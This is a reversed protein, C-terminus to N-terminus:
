DELKEKNELLLFVADLRLFYDDNIMDSGFALRLSCDHSSFSTHSYFPVLSPLRGFKMVYPASTEKKIYVLTDDALKKAMPLLYKDYMFDLHSNLPEKEIFDPSITKGVTCSHFLDYPVEEDMDRNKIQVEPDSLLISEYDNTAWTNFTDLHQLINTPQPM